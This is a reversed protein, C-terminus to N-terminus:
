PVFDQPEIPKKEAFIEAILHLINQYHHHNFSRKAAFGAAVTESPRSEAGASCREKSNLLGAQHTRVRATKHSAGAQTTERFHM